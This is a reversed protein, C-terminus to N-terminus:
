KVLEEVVADVTEQSLKKTFTTIIQRGITNMGLYSLQLRLSALMSSGGAGSHTALAARKGNFVRRWNEDGFRSIWAIFNTLTPPIGGNYEPSVFVVETASEMLNIYNKIVFPIEKLERDFTYLPLDIEVLDLIETNIERLEITKKIELALEMNKNNSAVVILINKM